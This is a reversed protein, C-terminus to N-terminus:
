LKVKKKLRDEPRGVLLKGNITYSKGEMTVKFTAHEKLIRREKGNGLVLLHKTEDVIVGKLGVLSNNSADIVEAPCGIFEHKIVNKVDM